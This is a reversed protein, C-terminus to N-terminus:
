SFPTGNQEKPIIPAWRRVRSVVRLRIIIFEAPWMRRLDVAIATSTPPRSLTTDMDTASDIFINAKETTQPEHITTLFAATRATVGSQDFPPPWSFSTSPSLLSDPAPAASSSVTALAVVTAVAPPLLAVRRVCLSRGGGHRDVV